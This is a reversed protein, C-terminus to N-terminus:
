RYKMYLLLAAAMGLPVLYEARPITLAKKTVTVSPSPTPMAIQATTPELNYYGVLLQDSNAM